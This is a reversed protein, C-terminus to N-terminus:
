ALAGRCRRYFLLMREPVFARVLVRVSKVWWHVYLWSFRASKALTALVDARERLVAHGQALRLANRVREFRLLSRQRRNVMAQLKKFTWDQGVYAAAWNASHHDQHFRVNVLPERCVALPSRLALRLWLDYDEASRISEDFMGAAVILDRSALVTPTRIAVEGRLIREFVDGESPQWVRLSENTLARGYQDVNTFASYSWQCQPRGELTAVQVQLKRDEWTDDSDLFAVYEGRCERLGANRTRAPVGVHDLWVVRVRPRTSIGQLYERTPAGSGDDAIVLEWDQWTQAFVSEVADRLFQLRNFVPIVVSVRPPASSL